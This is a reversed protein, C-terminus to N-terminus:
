GLFLDGLKPRLAQLHFLVAAISKLERNIRVMSTSYRQQIMTGHTRESFYMKPNRRKFIIHEM